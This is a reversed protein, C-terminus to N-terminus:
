REKQENVTDVVNGKGKNKKRHRRQQERQVREFEKLDSLASIDEWDLEVIDGGAAMGEGGSLEMSSSDSESVLEDIDGLSEDSVVAGMNDRNHQQSPSYSLESSSELPRGRGPKSKRKRKKKERQAPSSAADAPISADATTTSSLIATTTAGFSDTLNKLYDGVCSGPRPTVDGGVTGNATGSTTNLEASVHTTVIKGSKGKKGKRQGQLQIPAGRIGGESAGGSWSEDELEELENDGDRSSSHSGLGLEWDVGGDRQRKRDDDSLSNGGYNLLSGIVNQSLVQPTPLSKPTSTYM